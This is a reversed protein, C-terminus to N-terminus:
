DCKLAEDKCYAYRENFYFQKSVVKLMEENFDDDDDVYDDDIFYKLLM